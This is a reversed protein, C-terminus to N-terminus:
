KSPKSYNTNGCYLPEKPTKPAQASGASKPKSAKGEAAKGGGGSMASAMDRGIGSITAGGALATALQPVNRMVTPLVCSCIFLAMTSSIVNVTGAGSLAEKATVHVAFQSAIDTLMAVCTVLLVNLLVYNMATGIWNMTYKQTGPWMALMIFLPGVALVLALGVKAVLFYGLGVIFLSAQGAFVLGSSILMGPKSWNGTSAKALLSSGLKEYPKSMADILDGVSEKGSVEQILGKQLGQVGDVIFSQYVGVSLAIGAIFAMRFLKWSFTRVSESAEGRMIAFGMLIIYITAGTLVIPVLATILQSSIKTVFNLLLEDISLELQTAIGM